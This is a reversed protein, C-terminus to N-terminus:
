PFLKDLHSYSFIAYGCYSGKNKIYETQKEFETIDFENGVKYGALGWILKASDTSIKEWKDVATKFPLVSNDLSYYVQPIIWDAFGSHSCWEEVDAYQSNKNNDINGQPSISFICDPKISKVASYMAGVLASINARRWDYLELEGGSKIYDAYFIEDASKQTTPYFYDDIHIGDVDYNEAIEHIGDIVLKQVEHSAPCMFYGEDTKIINGSDNNIWDYCPNSESIEFKKSNYMIRFPNIWAHIKINRIHSQEVCIKLADFEAKKGQEGTLYYSSPFIESDYMADCFPRVQIFVTNINYQTCKDLMATIKDTFDKETPNKYNLMSIEDYFIWVARIETDKPQNKKLDTNYQKQCSCLTLIILLASFIKKM